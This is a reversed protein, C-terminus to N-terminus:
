GASFREDCGNDCGVPVGRINGEAVGVNRGVTIGVLLWSGVRAGLVAVENVIIVGVPLQYPSVWDPSPWYM